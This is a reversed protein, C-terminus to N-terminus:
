GDLRALLKRAVGSLALGAASERGFWGAEVGEAVEAAAGGRPSFRARYATIAFSRGTIAHRLTAVREALQWEGGFSTALRRAAVDRRRAEVLPVEWLGALQREREDRRFLLITGAREAVAAVQHVREPPAAASRVPFAAPSGAAFARCGPGLPCDPCRPARPLCVTAGLEMLAQNSDGPRAPDLLEAAFALLRRRTAARAPPEPEALFRALVREVNGDLVPVPEDFAISSIAAATYPGVGPLHALEAATRPIGTGRAAVERAAAQLHRARRYYGLGSWAALVKDTPAAALAEPNPFLALFREFYPVAVEVRTQQLM